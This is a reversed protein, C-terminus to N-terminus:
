CYAEQTATEAYLRDAPLRRFLNEGNLDFLVNDSQPPLRISHVPVLHRRAFFMRACAEGTQQRDMGDPESM